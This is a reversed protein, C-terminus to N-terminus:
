ASVVLRVRIGVAEAIAYLRKAGFTHDGRLLSAVDAARILALVSGLTNDVSFTNHSDVLPMGVARSLDLGSMLLIEDVEIQVWLGNEDLKGSPNPIWTRVPNETAAVFEFTREAVHVTGARSLSRVNM